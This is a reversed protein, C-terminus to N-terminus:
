IVVIIIYNNKKNNKVHIIITYFQIFNYLILIFLITIM